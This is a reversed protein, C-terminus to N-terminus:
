LYLILSRQRRALFRKMKLNSDGVRNFANDLYIEIFDRQNKTMSENSNEYVTQAEYFRYRDIM